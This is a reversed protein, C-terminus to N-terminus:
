RLPEHVYGQMDREEMRRFRELIQEEQNKAQIGLKSGFDLLKKAEEVIMGEKIRRNNYLIDNDSLSGILSEGSFNIPQIM